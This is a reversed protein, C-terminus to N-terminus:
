RKYFFQWPESLVQLTEVSKWPIKTNLCIQYSITLVFIIHSSELVRNPIQKRCDM